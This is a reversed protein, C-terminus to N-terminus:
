QTVALAMESGPFLRRRSRVFDQVIRCRGGEAVYGSGLAGQGSRVSVFRRHELRQGLEPESHPVPLFVDHPKTALALRFRLIKGSELYQLALDEDILQLSDRKQGKIPVVVFCLEPSWYKGEDKHLRVFDKAGAIPYHPLAGQL